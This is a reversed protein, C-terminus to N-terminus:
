SSIQRVNGTYVWSVNNNSAGTVRVRATAGTVDVTVDWGAQSEGIVTVTSGISTATGAANKIVGEVRYSAGDEATGSVGGTRRAVVYGDFAWTTSAPITYTQVTTVTADTTTVKSSGTAMRSVSGVQRDEWYNPGSGLTTETRNILFDVTSATGSNNWTPTLSM